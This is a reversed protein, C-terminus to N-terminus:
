QWVRRSEISLWALVQKSSWFLFADSVWCISATLSAKLINGAPVVSASAQLFSSVSNWFAMVDIWPVSGLQASSGVNILVYLVITQDPVPPAANLWEDSGVSGSKM